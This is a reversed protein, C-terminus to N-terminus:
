SCSEWVVLSGRTSPSPSSRIRGHWPDFAPGDDAVTIEILDEDRRFWVDFAPTHAGSAAHSVVNAVIEDLAVQLQWAAKGPLHEAACFADLAEAAQRVAPPAAPFHAHRGAPM